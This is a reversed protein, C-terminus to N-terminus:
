DGEKLCIGHIEVPVENTECYFEEDSGAQERIKDIEDESMKRIRRRKNTNWFGLLGRLWCNM